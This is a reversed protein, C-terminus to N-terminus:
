IELIWLPVPTVLTIGPSGAGDNEFLQNEGGARDAAGSGDPPTRLPGSQSLALDLDGDGDFDFLALGGGMTEPLERNGRGGHRHVFDVGSAATHPSFLAADPASTSDPERPTVAAPTDDGGCGAALAVLWAGRVLGAARTGDPRRTRGRM